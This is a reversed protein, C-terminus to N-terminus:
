VPTLIQHNKKCLTLDVHYNENKIKFSESKISHEGGGSPSSHVNYKKGEFIGPKM